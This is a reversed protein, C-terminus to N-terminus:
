ALRLDHLWGGELVKYRVVVSEAHEAIATISTPIQIDLLQDTYVAAAHFQGFDALSSSTALAAALSGTNLDDRHAPSTAFTFGFTM